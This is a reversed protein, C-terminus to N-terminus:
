DLLTLMKGEMKFHKDGKEYDTQLFDGSIDATEIDWGEM